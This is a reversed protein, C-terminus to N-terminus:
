YIGATVPQRRWIGFLSEAVADGSLLELYQTGYCAAMYVICEVNCACSEGLSLLRPLLRAPAQLLARSGVLTGGLMKEALAPADAAKVIHVGGKLGNTFHGLGRGGALIQSKVVVQRWPWLLAKESVMHDTACGRLLPALVM